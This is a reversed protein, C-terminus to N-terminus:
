YNLFQYLTLGLRTLLLSLPSNYKM